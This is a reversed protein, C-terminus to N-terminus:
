TPIPNDARPGSKASARWYLARRLAPWDAKDSSNGPSLSQANHANAPSVCLCVALRENQIRARLSRSGLAPTIRLLLHTQFDMALQVSVAQESAQGAAQWWWQMPEQNTAPWVVRLCAHPQARAARLLLLALLVTSAAWLANILSFQGNAGTNIAYAAILVIAIALLFLAWVRSPRVRLSLSQLAPTQIV